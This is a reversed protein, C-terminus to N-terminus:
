VITYLPIYHHIICYITYIYTHTNIHTHNHIYTSIFFTNSRKLVGDYMLAPIAPLHRCSSSGRGASRLATRTEKFGSGEGDEGDEGDEGEDGEDGEDGEKGQTYRVIKSDSNHGPEVPAAKLTMTM